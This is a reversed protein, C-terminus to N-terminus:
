KALLDNLPEALLTNFMICCWKAGVEDTEMRHTVGPPHIIFDHAKVEYMVESDGEGQFVRAKGELMYWYEEM